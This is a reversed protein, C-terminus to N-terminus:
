IQPHATGSRDVPPATRNLNEVTSAAPTSSNSGVTIVLKGRVQSAMLQQM